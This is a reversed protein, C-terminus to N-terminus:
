PKPKPALIKSAPAIDAVEISELSRGDPSRQFQFRVAVDNLKAGTRALLELGLEYLFKAEAQELKKRELRFRAFVSEAELMQMEDPKLSLGKLKSLAEEM